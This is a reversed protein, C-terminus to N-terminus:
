NHTDAPGGLFEKEFLSLGDPDLLRLVGVVPAGGDPLTVGALAPRLAQTTLFEKFRDIETRFWERASAAITMAGLEDSM